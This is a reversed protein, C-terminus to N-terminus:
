RPGRGAPRTSSSLRPSSSRRGRNADDDDLMAIRAERPVCPNRKSTAADYCIKIAIVQPSAPPELQSQREQPSRLALHYEVGLDSLIEATVVSRELGRAHGVMGEPHGRHQAAIRPTGEDQSGSRDEPSEGVSLGRFVMSESVFVPGPVAVSDSRAQLMQSHWACNVENTPSRSRETSVGQTTRRQRNRM